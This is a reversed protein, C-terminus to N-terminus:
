DEGFQEKVDKQLEAIILNDQVKNWDVQWKKVLTIVQKSCDVFKKLLQQNLRIVSMILQQRKEQDPFDAAFYPLMIEPDKQILKEYMAFDTNFIKDNWEAAQEICDFYKFVSDFGKAIFLDVINTTKFEEPRTDGEPAVPLLKDRELVYNDLYNNTITAVLKNVEEYTFEKKNVSSTETIRIKDNNFTEISYGILICYHLMWVGGRPNQETDLSSIQTLKKKLLDLIRATNGVNIMFKPVKTYNQMNTRMEQAQVEPDKKVLEKKKGTFVRIVWNKISEWISKFFDIIGETGIYDVSEPGAGWNAIKKERNLRQVEQMDNKAIADAYKAVEDDPVEALKKGKFKDSVWDCLKKLWSVKCIIAIFGAKVKGFANGIKTRFWKWVARGYGALKSFLAKIAAWIRKFIGQKEKPAEITEEKKDEKKKRRFLAEMGSVMMSADFYIGEFGSQAESMQVESDFGLLESEVSELAFLKDEEPKFSTINELGNLSFDFKM